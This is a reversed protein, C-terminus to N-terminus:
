APTPFIIFRNNTPANSAPMAHTAVASILDGPLAVLAVHEFQTCLTDTALAFPKAPVTAFGPVVGAIVSLVDTVPKNNPFPVDTAAAAADFRMESNLPVHEEDVNRRPSPAHAVAPPVPVTVLTASESPDVVGMKVMEPEGIVLLPVSVSVSEVSDALVTNAPGVLPPAACGAKLASTAFSRVEARAEGGAM